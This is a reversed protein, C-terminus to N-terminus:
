FINAFLEKDVYIFCTTLINCNFRFLVINAFVTLNISMSIYRTEYMCHVAVPANETRLQWYMVEDLLKIVSAPSTPM